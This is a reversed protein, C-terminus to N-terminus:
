NPDFGSLRVHMIPGRTIEVLLMLSWYFSFRSWCRIVHSTIEEAFLACGCCIFADAYSDNTQVQAIHMRM